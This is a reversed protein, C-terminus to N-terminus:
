DGALAVGLATRQHVLYRGTRTTSVLGCARLVALHESASSVGISARAALGTTSAPEALAALLAARTRGVLRALDEGSRAGPQWIGAIGRAPYAVVPPDFGVAAGPWAFVSPM